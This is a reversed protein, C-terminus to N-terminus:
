LSTSVDDPCRRGTCSRTHVKPGLHSMLRLKFLSKQIKRCGKSMTSVKAFDFIFSISFHFHNDVGKCLSVKQVGIKPFILSVNYQLGLMDVVRIELM